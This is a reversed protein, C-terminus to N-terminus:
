TIILMVYFEQDNIENSFTLYTVGRSKAKLSVKCNARNGVWKPKVDDPWYNVSYRGNWKRHVSISKTEGKKMVLVARSAYYNKSAFGCKGEGIYKKVSKIDDTDLGSSGFLYGDEVETPETLYKKNVWGLKGSTTMVFYFEDEESLLIVNSGNKVTGLDGNGTDPKPVLYVGNNKKGGTLKAVLIDDLFSDPYDIPVKKSSLAGYSGAADATVPFLSIVALVCLLMALTRKLSVKM